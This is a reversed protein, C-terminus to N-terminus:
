VEVSAYATGNELDALSVVRMMGIGNTRDLFLVKNEPDDNQLEFDGM